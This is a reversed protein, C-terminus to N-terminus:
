LGKKIQENYAELAPETWDVNKCHCGMSLECCDRHFKVRADRVLREITYALAAAIQEFLDNETRAGCRPCVEKLAKFKDSWELNEEGCPDVTFKNGCYCQMVVAPELEPTAEIVKM